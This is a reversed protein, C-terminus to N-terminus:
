KRMAEFQDFSQPAKFWKPPKIGTEKEVQAIIANPASEVPTYGCLLDNETEADEVLQLRYHHVLDLFEPPTM